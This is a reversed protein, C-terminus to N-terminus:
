WGGGTSPAVFGGFVYIKGGYEVMAQHHVPRAMPKKKTWRDAAPDYEFVIGRAKGGGFGGIVYLKGNATIGYLEEDPEPFPALKSWRAQGLATAVLLLVISGTALVAFTRRLLSSMGEERAIVSSVPWFVTHRRLM